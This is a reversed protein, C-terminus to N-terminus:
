PPVAGLRELYEGPSIVTVGGRRNEPYHKLNGTVLWAGSTKALALFIADDPDPLKWPWPAPNPLQLSDEILEKMWAPPFKYHAFKPRAAVESYEAIVSPCTVLQVHGKLVWGMVLHAPAGDPSLGASVIVNTDFVALRM